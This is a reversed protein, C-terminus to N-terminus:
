TPLLPDKRAPQRCRSFHSRFAVRMAVHAGSTSWGVADQIWEDFRGFGLEQYLRETRLQKCLGGVSFWMRDVARVLKRVQRAKEFANGCARFPCRGSVAQAEGPM